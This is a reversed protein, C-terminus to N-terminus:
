KSPLKQHDPYRPGRLPLIFWMWTVLGGLGSALVTAWADHYLASAAVFIAGVIAAALVFTGALVCRQATQIIWEKDHGRFNFRHVAAPAILLVTAVASALLTASYVTRGPATLRDFHSQFPLVLLFAFLVQVGPLVVRLEQLLEGLERDRRQHPTEGHSDAETGM